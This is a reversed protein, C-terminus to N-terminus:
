NSSDKIIMGDHLHVMRKARKAYNLEHTVMIITQGESHLMEFVEMVEESFSTDLNATPEDAFLVAPKRATARAISVRQQQGGSLQNPTKYMHDKLGVRELITTAQLTAEKHSAGQMLSPFMVNELATLEPLIAYNQFVFGFDNLRIETRENSTMASTDKTDVTITGSTPHDLLGIQYLFTSKGSGSPGIISVFEGQKVSFNIGKLIQTQISGVTFTKTINTATIM